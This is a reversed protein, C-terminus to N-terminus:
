WKQYQNKRGRPLTCRCVLQMYLSGFKRGKNSEGCGVFVWDVLAFQELM